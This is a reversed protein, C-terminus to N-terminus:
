PCFVIKAGLWEERRCRYPYERGFDLSGSRPPTARFKKDVLGRMEVNADRMEVTVEDLRLVRLAYDCCHSQPNTPGNHPWLTPPQKILRGM